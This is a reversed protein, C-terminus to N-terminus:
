NVLNNGKGLILGDRVLVNELEEKKSEAKYDGVYIMGNQKMVIYKVGNVDVKLEGLERMLLLLCKTLVAVYEEHIM